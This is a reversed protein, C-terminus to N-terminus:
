SCVELPVAEVTELLTSGYFKRWREVAGLDVEGV